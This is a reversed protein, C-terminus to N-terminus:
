VVLYFLIFSKHDYLNFLYAPYEPFDVVQNRYEEVNEAPVIRRHTVCNKLTTQDFNFLVFEAGECEESIVRKLSYFNGHTACINQGLTKKEM